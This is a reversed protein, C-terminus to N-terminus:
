WDILLQYLVTFGFFLIMVGSVRNLLRLTYTNLNKRLLGISSSLILWWSASGVFVGLILSIASDTNTDNDALGLGAFLAAFSLITLPNTIAVFLSSLYSNIFASSNVSPKESKPKRILTKIGLYYMFIGGVLRIYFQGNTLFNSIFTLGFGAISGYMSHATAAGLGSVFGILSGQRLTRNICLLGVVGVPAAVSFGIIWGQVLLSPQM